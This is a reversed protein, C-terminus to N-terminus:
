PISTVAIPIAEIKSRVYVNSIPKSQEDSYLASAVMMNLPLPTGNISTAM